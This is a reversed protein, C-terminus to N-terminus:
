PRRRLVSLWTSTHIEFSVAWPLRCRAQYTSRFCRGDTWNRCVRCGVLDRFRPGFSRCTELKICVIIWAVLNNRNYATSWCYPRQEIQDAQGRSLESSCIM